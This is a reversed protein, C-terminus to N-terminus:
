VGTLATPISVPAPAPAAIAFSDTAATGVNAGAADVAQATVTYSGPVLDVPAAQAGPSVYVVQPADVGNNYTVVINSVVTGAPAVFDGYTITETRITM